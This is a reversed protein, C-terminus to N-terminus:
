SIGFRLLTGAALALEMTETAGQRTSPADENLRHRSALDFTM